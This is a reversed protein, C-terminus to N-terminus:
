PSAFNLRVGNLQCWATANSIIDRWENESWPPLKDSRKRSLM